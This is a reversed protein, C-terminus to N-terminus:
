LAARALAGAALGPRGDTVATGDSRVRQWIKIQEDM